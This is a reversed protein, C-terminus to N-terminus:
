LRYEQVTRRATLTLHGSLARNEPVTGNWPEIVFGSDENKVPM